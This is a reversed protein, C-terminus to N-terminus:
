PEVRARPLELQPATAQGGIWLSGVLLSWVLAGFYEAEPSAHHCSCGLASEIRPVLALYPMSACTGLAAVRFSLFSVLWAGGLLPGLLERGAGNAYPEGIVCASVGLAIMATFAARLRSGPWLPRRLVVVVLWVISFLALVPLVLVANESM